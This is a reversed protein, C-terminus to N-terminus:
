EGLSRSFFELWNQGMIRAIDGDDFGGAGLADAVRSLDASTEIEVPIQERGFGGDM